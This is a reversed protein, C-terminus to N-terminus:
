SSEGLGSRFFLRPRGLFNRRMFPDCGFNLGLRDMEQILAKGEHSLPGLQDHGLAYRGHGYHAPGLARLGYGYATELDALTRISDSGELSLVYGIPTNEADEAWDELHQDLAGTTRIMSLEGVEEM